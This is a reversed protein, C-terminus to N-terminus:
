HKKPHKHFMQINNKSLYFPKQLRRFAATATQNKNKSQLEHEQNRLKTKTM